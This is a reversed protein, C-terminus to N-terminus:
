ALNSKRPYVVTPDTLVNVLAPKGASFARDLAADTSTLVSWGNQSVAAAEASTAPVLGGAAVGLAATATGTLFTRRRLPASGLDLRDQGSGVVLHDENCM